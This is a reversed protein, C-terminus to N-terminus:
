RGGVIRDLRAASGSPPGPDARWRASHTAIGRARSSSINSRPLGASPRKCPGSCRALLARREALLLDGRRAPGVEALRAYYTDIAESVTEFPLLSAGAAELHRLRYPAFAVPREDEIALTPEWRHTDAVSMFEMVAAIARPLDAGALPTAAAGTARFAIERGALPSLGAIRDSLFRALQGSQGIAAAALGDSSLQEPFLRDQAPPPEYPLHPLIPRRPNRSPPTRRAADMIVGDQGVLVLNSRRGMVEVILLFRHQQGSADRQECDLEFVRELRPQRVSRIHTNRLYKRAVLTFPSDREIGRAPLHPIRQVRCDDLDASLLVNTRGAQPSFVEMALSLEDPFVLKQLRADTLHPELEDRVATLTLADFSMRGLPRGRRVASCTRWHAPIRARRATLNTLRREDFLELLILKGDRVTDRGGRARQSLPFLVTDVIVKEGLGLVVRQELLALEELVRDHVVQIAVPDRQVADAISQTAPLSTMRAGSTCPALVTRQFSGLATVMKRRGGDSSSSRRPQLRPASFLGVLALPPQGRGLALHLAHAFVVVDDDVM